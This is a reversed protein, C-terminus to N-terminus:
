KKVFPPSGEYYDIKEKSADRIILDRGGCKICSIKDNSDYSYIFKNWKNDCYKCTFELEPM